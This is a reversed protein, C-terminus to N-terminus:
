PLLEELRARDFGVVTQDGVRVVPTTMYGLTALEELAQEDEAVNREIYKVNRQSLFEKVKECFM